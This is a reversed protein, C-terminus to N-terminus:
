TNIWRIFGFLLVMQIKTGDGNSITQRDIVCQLAPIDGILNQM